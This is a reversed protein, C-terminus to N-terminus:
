ITHGARIYALQTSFLLIACFPFCAGHNWDNSFNLDHTFIQVGTQDEPYNEQGSEKSVVDESTLDCEVYKTPFWEFISSLFIIISQFGVAVCLHAKLAEYQCLLM